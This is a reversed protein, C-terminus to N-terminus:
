FLDSFSFTLGGAAEALPAGAPQSALGRHGRGVAVAVLRPQAMGHLCVEALFELTM